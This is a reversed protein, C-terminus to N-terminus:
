SGIMRSIMSAGGDALRSEQHVSRPMYRQGRIPTIKMVENSPDNSMDFDTASGQSYWKNGAPYLYESFTTNPTLDSHETASYNLTALKKVVSQQNTWGPMHRARIITYAWNPSATTPKASKMTVNIKAATALDAQSLTFM